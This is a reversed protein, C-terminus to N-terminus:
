SLIYGVMGAGYECLKMILMGIGVSPNSFLKKPNSFFLLFRRIVSAQKRFSSKNAKKKYISINKAYYYKTRMTKWLSLNEENHLIYKNIRFVPAIKKARDYIDWDEGSIMGTDFGGIRDFITKKFFRSAEIWDIKEYYSRELAKCRAWFSKGISKEPLIISGIHTDKNVVEVCSSLIDNALQMDADIFCVYEGKAKSAGYNRQSSREPGKIFIFPTYKKSIEVTRDSSYNDVVIIEYNKYTQKTISSLCKKINKEENKTTVIVSILKKHMAM